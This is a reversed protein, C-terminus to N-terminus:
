EPEFLPTCEKLYSEYSLSKAPKIFPPKLTTSYKPTIKDELSHSHESIAVTLALFGIIGFSLAFRRITLVGTAVVLNGFLAVTSILVVTTYELVKALQISGTYYDVFEIIMSSIIMLIISMNTITYQLGFHAKKRALHGALSWIGSWVLPAFLIPLIQALLTIPKVEKYSNSLQLIYLIIISLLLSLTAYAPIMASMRSSMGTNCPIAPSVSHAPDLVRLTTKGLLLYDGSILRAPEHISKGKNVVTGNTSSMDTISLSNESITIIAHHPSVYPDTLILDNDYARGIRISSGSFKSFTHIGPRSQIEIIIEGM